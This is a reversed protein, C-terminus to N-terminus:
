PGSQLPCRDRRERMLFFYIHENHSTGEQSFSGQRGLAQIHERDVIPWKENLFDHPVTSPAPSILCVRGDPPQVGM